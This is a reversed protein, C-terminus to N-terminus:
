YRVILRGFLWTQPLARNGAGNIQRELLQTVEVEGTVRESFDIRAGGGFSAIRQSPIDNVSLNRAWGLDYFTYLQIPILSEPQDLDNTMAFNFQAEISTQLARDGTVEGNYYGRGLRDGGLYYKESNPLIDWSYQGSVVGLLNLSMSENAWIGQLRSIEGTAKFFLPDSGPRDNTPNGPQTPNFIDLGKHARLTARNLGNWADRLEGDFGARFARVDSQGQLVHGLDQGRSVSTRSNYFDMQAGVYLTQDRTRVIPYTLLAGGIGLDNTYGIAALDLDPYSTGAGGYLKLRLGSDTLPLYYNVQGYNQERTYTSFFQGELRDGFRTLSNMGVTGYLQQPGQFRSGRNDTAAVADFQRHTIQVVMESAGPTNGRRLVTRLATGPTDDALLLQREVEDIRAPRSETIRNLIREIRARSPGADGEISITSIYGEVVRIRVTGDAVQQQPVFVLTLFYGDDRYMREIRQALTFIESAAVRRGILPRSLEAIRAAPYATVGDVQVARPTLFIAEAGPPPATAPADPVQIGPQPTPVGPTLPTVRELPSGSLGPVAAPPVQALSGHTGALLVALWTLRWVRM